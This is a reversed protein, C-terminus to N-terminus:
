LLGDFFSPLMGTDIIKESFIEKYANAFDYPVPSTFKLETNHIPHKLQLVGAHLMMHPIKIYFSKFGYMEDGLIVRSFHALHARIQHTRGSYLKAAILSINKDTNIPVFLTKAEKGGSVVARKLRNKPHRALPEDVTKTENLAPMVLAIYYRGMTRAQLQEKLKEAAEDTKAVALLGSTDKDLRHVIGERDIGTNQALNFNNNKLWDVITTEKLTDAAHVAIGVPKDLIVIHEDEYVLTPSFLNQIKEKKPEELIEIDANENVSFSSKTVAKKGILVLGSDIL